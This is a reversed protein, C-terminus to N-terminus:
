FGNIIRRLIFIQIIIRVEELTILPLLSNQERLLLHSRNFTSRFWHLALFALFDSYESPLSHNNVNPYWKPVFTSIILDLDTAVYRRTRSTRWAYKSYVMVTLIALPSITPTDIPWIWLLLNLLLPLKRHLSWLCTGALLPLVLSYWHSTM